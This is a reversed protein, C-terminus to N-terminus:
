QIVEGKVVVGKVEGNTTLAILDADAGPRVTGKNREEVVTAPNLSAARVSQQLSWNGFEMVNRIARDLTLVSGALIGNRACKGDKVEVRLPGLMYTGDPMGAASIGDTILVAKEAGKAELFLRVVSPHVHVGDAIIDASLAANSLVEGLIGPARHDLPRMANFTHTGHRAGAAIGAQASALDADTHGLSVCVGRRSAEAITEEAGDLEPAITMVRIHGRAAQWFRDFAAVSPQQLDEPQHVGRRAHSLFPGELHIGLPQARRPNHKASEIQYAMRELACLTADMPAAVTTPFYSTVGKRLLFQEMRNRAQEDEQMVDHGASGHIHIDIFGPALIGDGFDVHKASAPFGATARSTVAVITREEVLVLPNEIIELPTYLAAATLALM